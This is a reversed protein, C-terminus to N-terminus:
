VITYPVLRVLCKVSLSFLPLFSFLVTSLLVFAERSSFRGRFVSVCVCVCVCFLCCSFRSLDALCYEKFLKQYYQFAFKEEATM